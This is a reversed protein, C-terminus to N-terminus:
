AYTTVTLHVCTQSKGLLSLALRLEQALLAQRNAGISQARSSDSPRVARGLANLVDVSLSGAVVAASFLKEAAFLGRLNPTPPAAVYAQIYLYLLIYALAEAPQRSGCEYQQKAM